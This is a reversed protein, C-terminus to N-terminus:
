LDGFPGCLDRCCQRGLPYGPMVCAAETLPLRNPPWVRSGM